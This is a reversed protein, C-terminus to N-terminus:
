DKPLVYIKKRCGSQSTKTNKKYSVGILKKAYRIGSASVGLRKAREHSYSDPYKEIDRRLAEQDIKQSAKNRQKKAAIRKSWRFIAARSIGFRKAAGSFSLKEDEKVKLVKERFDTSYTM